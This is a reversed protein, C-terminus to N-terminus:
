AEGRGKPQVQAAALLVDQWAGHRGVGPLMQSRVPSGALVLFKLSGNMGKEPLVRGRAYPGDNPLRLRFEPYQTHEDAM